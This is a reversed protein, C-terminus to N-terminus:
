KEDERRMTDDKNDLRSYDQPEIEIGSRIFAILVAAIAVVFVMFALAGWAYDTM